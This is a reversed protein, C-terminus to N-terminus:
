VHKDISFDKSKKRFIWVSWYSVEAVPPMKVMIERTTFCVRGLGGSEQDEVGDLIKVRLLVVGEKRDLVIVGLVKGHLDIDGEVPHRAVTVLM